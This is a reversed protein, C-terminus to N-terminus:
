ESKAGAGLLSGFRKKAAAWITTGGAESPAFFVADVFFLAAGVTITADAVNFVWPFWLGSFDLFDAVAGFRVRDVVNGVAGGVILGISLATLRRNAERLQYAFFAGIGLQLAVLVWRTAESDARLMGFSVGPNWIMTLDFVGSLEIRRCFDAGLHALQAERCGPPSFGMPGLIVYKSVQDLALVVLAILFGFRVM